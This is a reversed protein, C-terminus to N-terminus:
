GDHSTKTLLHNCYSDNSLIYACLNYQGNKCAFHLVTHGFHDNDDIMRGTCHKLLTELIDKSGGKAAYHLLSCGNNDRSEIIRLSKKDNKLIKRQFLYIFNEFAGDECHRRLLLLIEM